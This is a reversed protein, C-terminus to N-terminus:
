DIKYISRGDEAMGICKVRSLGVNERIFHVFETPNLNRYADVMQVEDPLHPEIFLERCSIRHLLNVLHDFDYRTKLFHHFINLALIVDYNIVQDPLFDFISCEYIEFKKNDARRLKSMFYHEKPNNEVAVCDFGEDEFRHCFYGLNAGIDLLSGQTSTLNGKIINFRMESEHAAPVNQLDPHTIPQYTVGGLMRAYGIIEKRFDNWKAHRVAVTIPVKPIGLLKAIALRHATNCFLFDGDRGIAVSIEDHQQFPNFAGSAQMLEKQSKYGDKKISNFLDEVQRCRNNLDEETRCNWLIQGRELQELIHKYFATDTWNSGEFFVEKFAGYVDLDEFRKELLDWDGGMVAGNFDDASFEQLASYEIRHPSIWLIQDIDPVLGHPQTFRALRWQLKAFFYRIHIWGSTLYRLLLPHRRLKAKIWRKFELFRQIRPTDKSKYSNSRTLNAGM